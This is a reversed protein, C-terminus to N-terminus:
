DRTWIVKKIHEGHNGYHIESKSQCKPCKEFDIRALETNVDDYCEMKTKCILCKM